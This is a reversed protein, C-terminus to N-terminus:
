LSNYWKWIVSVQTREIEPTEFYITEFYRSYTDIHRLTDVRIYTDQYTEPVIYRVIEFPM